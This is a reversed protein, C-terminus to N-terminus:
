KKPIGEKLTIAYKPHTFAHTTPFRGFLWGNFVRSGGENVVVQAAPNNPENSISTITSGQMVFSPFFEKVLVTLDSGPIRYKEGLNVTHEQTTKKEKDQVLLVVGTWKGKVADPVEVVPTGVPPIQVGAGQAAPSSAKPQEQRDSGGCASFLFMLLISLSVLAAKKM